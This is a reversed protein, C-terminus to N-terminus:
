KGQWKRFQYQFSGCAGWLEGAEAFSIEKNAYAKFLGEAFSPDHKYQVKVGWKKGRAQAAEIGERQRDLTQKREFEAFAGMLHFILEGYPSSLDINEKVSKFSAGKDKIESVIDILDKMSRGLRSLETVVVVDGPKLVSLLEALQPRNRNKGSVKEEFLRDVKGRFYDEQRDLKQEKTSVRAYGYVMDIEKMTLFGSSRM